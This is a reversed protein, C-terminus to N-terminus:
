SGSPGSGFRQVNQARVANYARLPDARLLGFVCLNYILVDTNEMVLQHRVTAQAPDLSGREIKKVLNALEGTEGCMGLVHHSLNSATKPFWLKSDQIAKEALRGLESPPQAPM